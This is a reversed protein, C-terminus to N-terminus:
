TYGLADEVEKRLGENPDAGLLTLERDCKELILRFRETKGGDVREVVARCFALLNGDHVEIYSRPEGEESPLYVKLLNENPEAYRYIRIGSVEMGDLRDAIKDSM